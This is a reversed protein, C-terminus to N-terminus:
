EHREDPPLEDAWTLRAVRSPFAPGEPVAENAVDRVRANGLSPAGLQVLAQGLARGAATGVTVRGRPGVQVLRQAHPALRALVPGCDVLERRSRPLVQPAGAERCGVPVVPHRGGRQEPARALKQRAVCRFARLEQRPEALGEDPGTLAIGRTGEEGLRVCERRFEVVGAERSARPERARKSQQPVLGRLRGLLHEAVDVVRKGDEFACAVVLSERHGLERPEMRQVQTVQGVGLRRQGDRQGM